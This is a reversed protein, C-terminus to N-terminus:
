SSCKSTRPERVTSLFAKPLKLRSLTLKSFTPGHVSFSFNDFMRMLLSHMGQMGRILEHSLGGSGPFSQSLEVPGKGM